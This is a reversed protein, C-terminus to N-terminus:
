ADGEERLTPNFKTRPTSPPPSAPVSTPFAREAWVEMAQRRHATRTFTEQASAFKPKAYRSTKDEAQVQQLRSVNQELAINSSCYVGGVGYM